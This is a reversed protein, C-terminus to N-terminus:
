KVRLVMQERSVSSPRIEILPRVRIRVLPGGAGLLLQGAVIIQQGGVAVM